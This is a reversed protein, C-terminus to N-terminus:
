DNFLKGNMQLLVASEAPKEKSMLAHGFDIVCGM